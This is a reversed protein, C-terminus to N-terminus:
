MTSRRGVRRIEVAVPGEADSRSRASEKTHGYPFGPSPRADHRLIGALGDRYNGAALDALPTMRPAAAVESLGSRM